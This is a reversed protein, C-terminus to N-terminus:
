MQTPAVRGEPANPSCLFSHEAPEPLRPVCFEGWVGRVDVLERTVPHMTLSGDVDAMTVEGRTNSFGEEVVGCHSM